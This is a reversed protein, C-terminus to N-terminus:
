EDLRDVLLEVYELLQRVSARYATMTSGYPDPVGEEGSASNVYNQLAYIEFSDGFIQRLKEVHWPEMALVLDAGELMIESVQRAHHNGAYIGIEELAAGANPALPEGTLARVGASEARLDLGRNEALANFMAEAMPSRCVNATCIFLINKTRDTRAENETL